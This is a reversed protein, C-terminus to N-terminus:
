VSQQLQVGAPMATAAADTAHDADTATAVIADASANPVAM